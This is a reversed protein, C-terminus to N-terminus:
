DGLGDLVAEYRPVAAPDTPSSGGVNFRLVILGSLYGSDALGDAWKSASAPDPFQYVSVDDTTILRVCGISQCRGSNDRPANAPLGAAVFADIVQGATLTESGGGPLAVPCQAGDVAKFSREGAPLGTSAAGVSGVAFKANALRNDAGSTGGTSCNIQVFYGGQRDAFQGQLEAVIGQLDAAPYLQDVFVDLYREDRVELRYSPAASETSPMTATAKQREPAADQTGGCGVAAIVVTCAAISAIATRM